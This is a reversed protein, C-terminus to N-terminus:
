TIELCVLVEFKVKPNKSFVTSKRKYEKVHTEFLQKGSGTAVNDFHKNQTILMIFGM